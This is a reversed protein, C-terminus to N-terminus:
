HAWWRFSNKSVFIINFLHVHYDRDCCTAGDNIKEFVSAESRVMLRPSYYLAHVWSFVSLCTRIICHIIQHSQLWGFENTQAKCQSYHFSSLNKNSSDIPWLKEERWFWWIPAGFTIYIFRSFIYKFPNNIRTAKGNKWTKCIKAREVLLLTHWLYVSLDNITM